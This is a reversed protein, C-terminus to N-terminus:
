CSAHATSDIRRSPHEIKYLSRLTSSPIDVKFFETALLDACVVLNEGRPYLTSLARITEGRSATVIEELQMTDTSFTSLTLNESHQGTTHAFLYQDATSTSTRVETLCNRFRVGLNDVKNDLLSLDPIIKSYNKYPVSTRQLLWPSITDKCALNGLFRVRDHEDHWFNVWVGTETAEHWKYLLPPFPSPMSEM